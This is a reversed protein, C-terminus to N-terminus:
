KKRRSRAACTIENSKLVNKLDFQEEFDVAINEQKLIGDLPDSQMEQEFWYSPLQNSDSIRASELDNNQKTFIYRSEVGDADIIAFEKKTASKFTLSGDGIDLIVNSGKM